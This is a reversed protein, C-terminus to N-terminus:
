RSGEMDKILGGIIEKSQKPTLSTATMKEMAATYRDVDLRKDLYMASTLHELYM